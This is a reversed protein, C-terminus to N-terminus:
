GDVEDRDRRYVDELRKTARYCGIPRCRAVDSENPKALPVVLVRGDVEAVM